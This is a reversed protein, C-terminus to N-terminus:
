PLQQVWSGDKFWRDRMHNLEGSDILAKMFNDLWNILLADEQL